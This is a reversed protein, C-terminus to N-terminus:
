EEAVAPKATPLRRRIRLGVGLRQWFQAESALATASLPNDGLWDSALDLGFGGPTQRLVGAPLPADDRSRNFLVALRLCAVLRWLADTRPVGQLKELKGRQNLVLQALREQDKRSLGPMDANAIIYAAHKHFGSHAISLGIEHLRAAWRLFRVEDECEPRDLDVLQGLLALADREVREAQRRDVQYRRMFQAVTADRMDHQQFRGLLDYLVGLRLAGESYVLHEINLTTFIASMIALGGALVQVRDARLGGLKLNAASGARILQARLTALGVRTIGSVGGPNLANLELLDAIARATGSSAAAEDWGFDRYAHAILAIESAAALEAEAFRRADIRGDPFFRLSYSVCGMYLSELLLPELKKGVIFETSGGGIDIILRKHRSAPLEHVAGLYILRAEERGSIVEIPFGLAVEFTPLLERANKAVRLTNTAVARVSGPQFGRLREGFLSLAHLARQQAAEDLFKSADLGSALRVPEKVSDLPYIQDDVVRGVELRFSNSGLDVAAIQEYGM